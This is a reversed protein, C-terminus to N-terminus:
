NEDTVRPLEVFFTSGTGEESNVWIRGHHAEIISKVMNLGLGTGSIQSTSATKVRYFAEFLRAQGEKPIGYGTDEVEVQVSDKNATVRLTIQGSDPTYKSANDLLNTIAQSLQGPQALVVVNDSTLETQFTQSKMAFNPEHRVILDHVIRMLDTPEPTVNAARLQELNLIDTVIQLMTDAAREISNIYRVQKETFNEMKMSILNAYGLVTSIPNKLDHSAMRIMHTKLQSLEALTTIDSLTILWFDVGYLFSANISFTKDLLEIEHQFIGPSAFWVQVESSDALGVEELIQVLDRGQASTSLQADILTHFADNSKVIQRKSDLIIHISPSAYLIAEILDKQNRTEDYLRVNELAPALQWVLDQLLQQQKHTIRTKPAFELAIIGILRKQWLMPIAFYEGDHVLQQSQYVKDHVAKLSLGKTKLKPNAPRGEPFDYHQETDETFLHINGARVRVIAEIDQAIARFVRDIALEQASLAVASHLLFETKQRRNIETTIDLGISFLLTLAIALFGDMLDILTNTLQFYFSVSIIFVLVLLLSLLIEWYWRLFVTLLSTLIAITSITIIRWLLPFEGIANDHMLTEIAHAHVEIGAMLLGQTATPVHYLDIAGISNYLGILVVKDAFIAPDINEELVDVMSIIPFTTTPTGFFNQRWLGNEDIPVPHQPTISLIDDEVTIVQQAASSPIRLYALFTAISFTFGVEDSSTIFSAQRRIAGDRDPFANIYGLYDAENAIVDIPRLETDYFIGTSGIPSTVVFNVGVIPMIVRTRAESSRAQQMAEAVLNDDESPESFLVDFAIVRANATSLHQILDAYLRRSWQTPSRGYAELSADDLAVIVVRESQEDNVFYTDNLRLRFTTLSNALAMICVIISVCGGLLLSRYIRQRKSIALSQPQFTM